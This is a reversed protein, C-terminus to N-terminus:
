DNPKGLYPRQSHMPEGDEMVVVVWELYVRVRIRDDKKNRTIVRKIFMLRALGNVIMDVTDLYHKNDTPISLDFIRNYPDAVRVLREDMEENTMLAPMPGRYPAGDIDARGWYLNGRKGGNTKGMFKVLSTGPM